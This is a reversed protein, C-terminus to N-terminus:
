GDVRDLFKYLSTFNIKREYIHNILVWLQDDNQDVIREIDDPKGLIKNGAAIIAMERIEKFKCNM